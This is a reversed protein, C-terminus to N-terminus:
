EPVTVVGLPEDGMAAALIGTAMARLRVLEDLIELVLSPHVELSPMRDPAPTRKNRKGKARKAKTNGAIYEDRTVTAYNRLEALLEADLTARASLRQNRSAHKLCEITVKTVRQVKAALPRIADPQVALIFAGEASNFVSECVLDGGYADCAERDAKIQAETKGETVATRDAVIAQYSKGALWRGAPVADAKAALEALYDPLYVFRMGPPPTPRPAVEGAVEDSAPIEIEEVIRPGSM